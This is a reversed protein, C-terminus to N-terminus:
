SATALVWAIPDRGMGPRGPLPEYNRIGLAKAQVPIGTKSSLEPYEVTMPLGRLADFYTGPGGPARRGLAAHLARREPYSMNKPVVNFAAGGPAECVWIVAGVDKGRTGSTYGVLPFEADFRPKIKMIHSSHTGNTGYQYPANNKRVIAGEYGDKVFAQALTHVHARAAGADAFVREACPPAGADACVRLPFNAARVVKDRVLAGRPGDCAVALMRDLLRQRTVARVAVGAAALEPMFCDFVVMRLSDGSAAGSSQGQIWQLPKGHEYLEGDVYVRPHAGGPSAHAAWPDRRMAACLDAWAEPLAAMAAGLAARLSAMGMYEGGTRSYLVISPEGGGVDAGPPVCAVLRVGNYKRQVFVGEALVAPSLQAAATAGIKQVLMPAPRWADPLTAAQAHAGVLAVGARKVQKNYLSLADRLAQTVPNTANAKGANKGQAVITPVGNARLKGGEQWSETVIIGHVGPLPPVPQALWDACNFAVYEPGRRACVRVEWHLLAGRTNRTTVRPFLFVKDGDTFAGPVAPPARSLAVWMDRIHTSAAAMASYGTGRRNM